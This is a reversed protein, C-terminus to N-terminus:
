VDPTEVPRTARPREFIEGPHRLNRASTQKKYIAYPVRPSDCLFELFAPMHETPVGCGQGNRLAFLGLTELSFSEEGAFLEQLTGWWPVIYGVDIMNLADRLDDTLGSTAVEDLLPCLRARFEEMDDDEYTMQGLEFHLLHDCLEGVSSFWKFRGPGIACSDNTYYGVSATLPDRCAAREDLRILEENIM